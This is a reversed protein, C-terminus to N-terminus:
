KNQRILLLRSLWKTRLQYLVRQEYLWTLHKSNETWKTLQKALETAAAEKEEITMKQIRKNSIFLKITQTITTLARGDGVTTWNYGYTDDFLADLITILTWNLHVSTKFESDYKVDFESLDHDIHTNGHGPTRNKQQQLWIGTNSSTMVLHNDLKKLSIGIEYVHITIFYISQRGKQNWLQIKWCTYQLWITCELTATTTVNSVHKWTHWM